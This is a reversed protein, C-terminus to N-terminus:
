FMYYYNKYVTYLCWSLDSIRFSFNNTSLKSRTKMFDIPMEKHMNNVSNLISKQTIHVASKLICKVMTTPSNQDFIIFIVAVHTIRDYIVQLSAVYVSHWRRRKWYPTPHPEPTYKTMRLEYSTGSNASKNLRQMKCGLIHCHELPNLNPNMPYWHHTTIVNQQLLWIVERGLHLLAFNDFYLIIDFQTKVLADVSLAIYCNALTTALAVHAM